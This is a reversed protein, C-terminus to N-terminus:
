IQEYKVYAECILSLGEYRYKIYNNAFVINKTDIKPKRIGSHGRLNTPNNPPQKPKNYLIVMAIVWKMHKRAKLLGGNIWVYERFCQYEFDVLQRPVKKITIDREKIKYSLTKTADNMVDRKIPLIKIINTQITVEYLIKNFVM